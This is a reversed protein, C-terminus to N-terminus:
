KTVFGAEAWAAYGSYTTDNGTLLTLTQAGPPIPIEIQEAPSLSSVLTREWVVRDDILVQM